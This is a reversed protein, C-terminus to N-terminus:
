PNKMPGAAINAAPSCPSPFHSIGGVLVLLLRLRIAFFFLATLLLLLAALVALRAFLAAFFLAIGALLPLTLAWYNRTRPKFRNQEPRPSFAFSYSYIELKKSSAM